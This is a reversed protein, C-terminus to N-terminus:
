SLHERDIHHTVAAEDGTFSDCFPCNVAVYNGAAGSGHGPDPAVHTSSPSPPLFDALSRPPPESPFGVDARVDTYRRAFHSSAHPPRPSDDPPSPMPEPAAAGMRQVRGVQGSRLRVKIGRTHNGGRTLLEGVVGATERGTPQDQKLIIFVSAGPVVQQATPLTGAAQQPTAPSARSSPGSRTSNRKDPHPPRPQRNRPRNM